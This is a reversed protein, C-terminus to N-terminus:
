LINVMWTLLTTVFELFAFDRMSAHATKSGGILNSSIVQQNRIPDVISVIRQRNEDAAPEICDVQSSSGPM